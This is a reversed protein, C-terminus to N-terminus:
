NMKHVKPIGPHTAPAGKKHVQSNLNKSNVIFRSAKGKSPQAETSQTDLTHLYKRM